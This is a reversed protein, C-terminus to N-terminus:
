DFEASSPTQDAGVRGPEIDAAFYNEGRIRMGALRRLMTLQGVHCLADAIPGQFLKAIPVALEADSALLGDFRGLVTFFRDCGDPWPLPASNAWVQRGEAMAVAWDFLDGLHAVIEGVSRSGDAVRFDSFEPSAGRFAKSARYALTAVTHRLLDRDSSM